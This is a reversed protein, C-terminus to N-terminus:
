KPDDEDDFDFDDLNIEGSAASSSDKKPSDEAVDADDDLEDILNSIADDLEDEALDLGQAKLMAQAMDEEEPDEDKPVDNTPEDDKTVDGEPVAAVDLLDDINDANVDAKNVPTEPNSEDSEVNPADSVKDDLSSLDFDFNEDVKDVEEAEESQEQTEPETEEVLEDDDDFNLDPELDEMPPIEDDLDQMQMAGADGFDEEPVPETNQEPEIAAESAKPVEDEKVDSASGMMKKFVFFGVGLLLVNGLGLASYLIWPTSADEANDKPEQIDEETPEPPEEKAPEQATAEVSSSASSSQSDKEEDMLLSEFDAGPAYNFSLDDLTYEFTMESNDVGSIRVVLQHVGTQEPIITYTWEDMTNLQLPLVQKRRDPTTLTLAMQTNKPSIHEANKRVYLIYQMQSNDNHGKILEASFPTVINLQHSFKRKFSKGDLEVSVTYDGPRTFGKIKTSFIGRKPPNQTDFTHQWSATQNNAPTNQAEITLLKLFDTRSVVQKDEQLALQLDLESGVPANMPLPKVRLNLDSVVTIRSGKALPGKVQWEGELPRTITVLDYNNTHHWSVDKGIDGESMMSGDPGLLSIVDGPNDRFMLATFEEVSSDVVFRNGAIPLQQSPSAADFAKLFAPMLEEATKAVGAHGDTALSLKNMLHTDANDSLAVTHVSFGQEKLMPIIEDVIRRWEKENVSPDKDIDVMGDTLLIIHANKKSTPSIQSAKELAGGINTYLGVSNIKKARETAMERWQSNVEGFPVLMNVEKGFTWVGAHSGDPLLEMLMNVAPQRLNQPDNRKMSGSIDIVLRVDTDDNALSAVPHVLILLCLLMLCRKALWVLALGKNHFQLLHRVGFEMEM